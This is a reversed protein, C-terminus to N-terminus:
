KLDESEDKMGKVRKVEYYFGTQDDLTEDIACFIITQFLIISQTKQHPGASPDLPFLEGCTKLFFKIM